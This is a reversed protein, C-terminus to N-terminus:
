DTAKQTEDVILALLATLETEAKRKDVGAHHLLGDANESQLLALLIHETGIYNHGLRLAERFALELVKKVPGNFPILEM